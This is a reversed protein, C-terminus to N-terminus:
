IGLEVYNMNLIEFNLGVM